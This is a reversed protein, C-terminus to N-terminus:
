ISNIKHNLRVHYYQTLGILVAIFFSVNEKFLYSSTISVFSHNLIVLYIIFGITKTFSNSNNILVKASFLIKVILVIWISLGIIGFKHLFEFYQSHISWWYMFKPEATQTFFLYLTAGSGHGFITMNKLVVYSEYIRYGLSSFPNILEDSSFAMMRHAIIDTIRFGFFQLLYNIAFLVPIGILLYKFFLSLKLKRFVFLFYVILSLVTSLWLGRTQTTLLGFVSIFFCAFLLMRAQNKKVFLLMIFSIIVADSIFIENWGIIRQRTIAFLVINEASYLTAFLIVCMFISFIRRPRYLNASYFIPVMGFLFIKKIDHLLHIDFGHHIIAYISLAILYLILTYYIIMLNSKPLTITMERISFMNIFLFAIIISDPINLFWINSTPSFADFFFLYCSLYIIVFNFKNIKLFLLSLPALLFAVPTSNFVHAVIALLAIYTFCFGYHLVKTTDRDAFINTPISITELSPHKAM